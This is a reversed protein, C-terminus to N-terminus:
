MAQAFASLGSDFEPDKLKEIAQAQIQRVGEASLGLRRGAQRLSTPTGDDLGFRCRLVDQERPTLLNLAKAVGRTLENLWVRERLPEAADIELRDEITQGEDDEVHISITSTGLNYIYKVKEADMNIAKGIEAYTPKRGHIKLFGYEFNKIKKLAGVKNIPITVTRSKQEIARQMYLRIWWAAYSILRCKKEPDFRDIAEILGLNGEQILDSLSLGQNRFSIAMRVVFRQNAEVLRDRAHSDNKAARALLLSEESPSLPKHDFGKLLRKVSIGDYAM